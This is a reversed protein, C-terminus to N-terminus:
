GRVEAKFERLDGLADGDSAGLDIEFKTLEAPTARSALPYEKQDLERLPRPQAVYLPPYSRKTTTTTTVTKTEVCEAVEFQLRSAQHTLPDDPENFNVSLRQSSRPRHMDLAKYASAPSAM